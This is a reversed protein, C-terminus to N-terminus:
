FLWRSCGALHLDHLRELFLVHLLFPSLLNRSMHELLLKFESSCSM